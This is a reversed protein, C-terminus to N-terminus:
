FPILTNIDLDEVNPLNNTDKSETENKVYDKNEKNLYSELYNQLIEDQKTCKNAWEESLSTQTTIKPVFYTTAGKKQPTNNETITVVHMDDTRIKAEIWSGLSSGVFQINVLKYGEKTELSAYVSKSYKAGAAVIREKIKSYNGEAILDNNFTKVFLESELSRVENSYIGAQYKDSWGKITTLQDLVVFRITSGIPVNEKKEKDYYSFQKLESKWQLFLETPNQQTTPKSFSM